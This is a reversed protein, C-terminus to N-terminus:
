QSPNVVEPSPLNAYNLPQYGEPPAYKLPKQGFNTWIKSAGSLNAYIFFYWEKGAPLTFTPNDGTLPNGPSGTQNWDDNYWSIGDGLYAKNNDLDLCMQWPILREITGTGSTLTSSGGPLLQLTTGSNYAIYYPATAGIWGTAKADAYTWGFALHGGTDLMVEAYWKGSSVKISSTSNGETSGPHTLNGDTLSGYTM